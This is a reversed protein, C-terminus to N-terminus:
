SEHRLCRCEDGALVEGEPSVLLDDENFEQTWRYNDPDIGQVIDYDNCRVNSRLIEEEPDTGALVEEKTRIKGNFYITGSRRLLKPEVKFDGLEQGEITEWSSFQFGFPRAGYRELIGKALTLADKISWTQVHRTSQENFFTGPSYFTVKHRIVKRM